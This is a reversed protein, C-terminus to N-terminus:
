KEVRHNTHTSLIEGCTQGEQRELRGLASVRPVREFTGLPKGSHILMV